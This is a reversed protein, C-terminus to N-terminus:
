LRKKNEKRNFKSSIKLNEFKFLYNPKFEKIKKRFIIPQKSAVSADDFM